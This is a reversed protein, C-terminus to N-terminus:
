AALQEPAASGGELGVPILTLIESGKYLSFEKSTLTISFDGSTVTWTRAAYTLTAGHAELIAAKKDIAPQPNLPAKKAKPMAAIIDALLVPEQQGEAVEEAIEQIQTTTLAAFPNVSLPASVETELSDQDDDLAIIESEIALFRAPRRTDDKAVTGVNILDVLLERVRSESVGIASAIEKATLSETEIAAVINTSTTM